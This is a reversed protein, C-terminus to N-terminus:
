ALYQNFGGGRLSFWGSFDVMGASAITFTQSITGSAGNVDLYQNGDGTPTSIPGSLYLLHPRVVNFPLSRPPTVNSATWDPITAYLNDGLAPAAPTEFSRNNLLQQAAAPISTTLLCAVILRAFLASVLGTWRRM